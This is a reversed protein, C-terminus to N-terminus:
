ESLSLINECCLKFKVKPLKFPFWIPVFKNHDPEADRVKESDDISKSRLSPSFM